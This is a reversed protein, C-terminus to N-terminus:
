RKKGMVALDVQLHLAIPLARKIKEATHRAVAQEPTECGSARVYRSLRRRVTSLSIGIAAAIMRPREGDALREILVRDELARRARYAM